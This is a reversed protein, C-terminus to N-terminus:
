PREGDWSSAYDGDCYSWHGEFRRGGPQAIFEIKGWYYTSLKMTSCRMGSTSQAWYGHAEIGNVHAAIRGHNTPYTAAFDAGTQSVRMDYSGKWAGSFDFPPPVTTTKAFAPAAAALALGAVLLTKLAAKRTFM